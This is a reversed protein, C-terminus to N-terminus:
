GDDAVAAGPEKMGNGGSEALVRRMCNRLAEASPSLTRRRRTILGLEREVRPEGLAVFCLRSDDASLALRPLATIGLNARLIAKLSIINSVAFQAGEMVHQAPTGDLLRCTGNFILTEGALDSWTLPRDARALPHDERCVLGMVDTMLPEFELDGDPPSLSAVGFDARGERVRDRVHLATDDEVTIHVGPHDRTFRELVEPLLRTAFSPVSAVAVRGSRSDAALAMAEITRTFHELLARARPLCAQGFPTLETKNGREFLPQGLRQELERIALSIAPQTRAAREAAAHYSKTEAVLVFYRLQQIKVDPLM